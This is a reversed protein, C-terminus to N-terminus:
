EQSAKKSAWWAKRIESMRQKAEPSCRHGLAYKNGKHAEGIRRRGDLSIVHGKQAESMHKRALETAVRGRGADRIKRRHELTLKRGKKSASIKAREEASKQRGKHAEGIHRRHAESKPVGRHTESLRRRTEDSLRTSGDVSMTLNYAPRCTELALAEFQRVVSEDCEFLRLFVFAGKGDRDWARQLRPNKHTQYNLARKHALMRYQVDLSSGIYLHGNTRNVIAYIGCQKPAKM